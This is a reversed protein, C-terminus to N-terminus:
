QSIETKYLEKRYRFSLMPYDNKLQQAVYLSTDGVEKDHVVADVHFITVPGQGAKQQDTLRDTQGKKM